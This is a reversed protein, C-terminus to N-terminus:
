TVPNYCDTFIPSLQYTHVVVSVDCMHTQTFNCERWVYSDEGELHDDYDKNYDGDDDDGYTAITTTMMMLM